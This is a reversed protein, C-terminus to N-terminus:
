YAGNRGFVVKVTKFLIALDYWLSWNKVYWADLYVRTEYDVDNRGSVQWLGTMGPRVMLYYSKDLGYKQLEDEVIPRPGVLSMESKLVNFLQPLEDLSTRRLFDGMRSIRPDDKLKHEKDWEAKLHANHQLLSQLQQEANPVMSRFKYCDFKRGNKGIRQHAFLVSGGELKLLLAILLMMPLLMVLLLAAVLTDFLRKTLRAPWRRLNNRVRLLAVEHSFFHSMDTGYLPVGRMAPIVSIDTAGWQTLTRLWHERQEAQSHELAIVWQIGPQDALVELQHLNLLTQKHHKLRPSDEEVDVYGAVEFGMRPESELAIAAEVANEGHGIIITPRIWLGMQKLMWRTLVRGWVVMGVALVWVLLWWLRSSNWRTSAVLTMDLLALSGMLRLIDGLEDWFPRRDSYHQFRMLFLMLGLFVLGSWAVYRQMDQTSFWVSVNQSPSVAVNILTAIAFAIAFAIADGLLIAFKSVRVQFLSLTNIM